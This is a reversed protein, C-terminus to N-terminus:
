AARLAERAQAVPDNGTSAITQGAASPAWLPSLLAALLFVSSFSRALRM